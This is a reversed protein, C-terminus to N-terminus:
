FAELEQFFFCFAWFSIQLILLVLPKSLILDANEILYRVLNSKTQNKKKAYNAFDLYLKEPIRAGLFRRNKQILTKQKTLRLKM